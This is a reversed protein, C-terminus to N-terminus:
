DWPPEDGDYAVFNEITPHTIVGLGINSSASGNKSASTRSGPNDTTTLSSSLPVADTQWRVFLAIDKNYPVYWKKN